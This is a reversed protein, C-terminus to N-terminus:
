YNVTCGIDLFVVPSDAKAHHCAHDSLIQVNSTKSMLLTLMGCSDNIM